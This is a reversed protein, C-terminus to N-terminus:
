QPRIWDVSIFLLLESPDMALEGALVVDSGVYSLLSASDSRLAISAEGSEDGLRVEGSVSDQVVRGRISLDDGVFSEWNRSLLNATLVYESIQSLTV